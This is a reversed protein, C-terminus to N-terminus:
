QRCFTCSSVSILLLM